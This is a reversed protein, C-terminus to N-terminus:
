GPQKGVPLYVSFVAGKEPESEVAIVGGHKDVISYCISLGLGMGKTTGSPKTSFYPDFIRQLHERPIGRGQDQVSWRVYRRSATDAAATQPRKLCKMDTPEGKVNEAWIHIPGGQPMAEMANMIINEMCQRMQMEDLETNWLDDPLSMTLHYKEENVCSDAVEKLLLSVSLPKLWPYGGRSFTVLREALEKAQFCGKEANDLRTFLKEDERARMKALGINGLIGTLINNFDHAIGGALTGISELKQTKLFEERMRKRQTIDEFLAVIGEEGLREGIISAYVQCPIDHGLKHRCNFEESFTRHEELATYTDRGIREYEDDTPYLVRTSRGVLEGPPWGFVTQAGRNAYTITRNKLVFIAHPVTDLISAKLQESATLAEEVKKRATIVNTTTLVCPEGSLDTIIASLLGTEEQGSKNYQTYEYNHVQGKERLRRYLYRMDERSLRGLEAPTHGVMEQRTYGSYSLSSENVDLYTGDKLSVITMPNPNFHFAKSFKEESAKLANIAQRREELIQQKQLIKRILSPILKLYYGDVDKIIYDAAGLKLSEVAIEESGTGTVMIMPPHDDRCAIRKMVELGTMGPMAQDVAVIDYQRSEFLDLGAKGDPAIDVEYGERQLNKQFLRALGLDDDMYLIRIPKLDNM